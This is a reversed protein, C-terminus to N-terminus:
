SYGSAVKMNVTPNRNFKKGQALQNAHYHSLEQELPSARLVAIPQRTSTANFETWPTSMQQLTPFRKAHSLSPSFVHDANTKFPIRPQPAKVMRADRKRKVDDKPIKKVEGKLVGRGGSKQADTRFNEVVFSSRLVTKGLIIPIGNITGETENVVLGSEALDEETVVEATVVVRRPGKSRTRNRQKPRLKPSTLSAREIRHMLSPSLTIKSTKTIGKVRTASRSRPKLVSPEMEIKRVASKNTKLDQAPDSSYGNGPMQRKRPRPIGSGTPNSQLMLGDGKMLRGKLSSSFSRPLSRSINQMDLENSSSPFRVSAGYLARKRHNPESPIESRQSPAGLIYSPASGVNTSIFNSPTDRFSVMRSAEQPWSTVDPINGFGGLNQPDSSPISLPPPEDLTPELEPSLFFDPNSSPCGGLAIDSLGAFADDKRSM